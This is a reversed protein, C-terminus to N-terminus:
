KRNSSVVLINVASFLDWRMRSSCPSVQGMWCQRLSQGTGVRHACLIPCLLLPSSAVWYRIQKTEIWVRHGLYCLTFAVM